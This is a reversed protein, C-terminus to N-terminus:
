APDPLEGCVEAFLPVGHSVEIRRVTGDGLAALQDLLDVRERTLAADPAPRGPRPDVRGAFKLTRTVRPPRDFSPLGGRVALDEIRGFWVHDLLDLLRRRAPALQGRSVHASALSSVFTM